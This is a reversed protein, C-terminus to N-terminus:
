SSPGRPKFLDDPLNLGDALEDWRKQGLAWVALDVPRDEPRSKRGARGVSYAIKESWDHLYEPKRHANLDLALQMRWARSVNWPRLIDFLLVAAFVLSALAASLTVFPDGV